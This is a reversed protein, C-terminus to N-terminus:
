KIITIASFNLFLVSLLIGMKISGTKSQNFSMLTIIQTFYYIFDRLVILTENSEVFTFRTRLLWGMGGILVNFPQNSFSFPMGKM